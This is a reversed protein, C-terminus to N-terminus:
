EEVGKDPDNIAIEQPPRDPVFGTEPDGVTIMMDCILGDPRPTFVITVDEDKFQHVTEAMEHSVPVLYLRDTDLDIGVDKLAELARKGEPTLENTM